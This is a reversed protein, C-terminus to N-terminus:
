GDPPRGGPDPPLATLDARSPAAKAGAEQGGLRAQQEEATAASVVFWGLLALWVGGLRSGTVVQVVGLAILVFGLVRGARAANLAAPQREGRWRWL